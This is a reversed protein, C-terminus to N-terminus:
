KIGGADITFKLTKKYGGIFEVEVEWEATIHLRGEEKKVIIDEKELPLDLEKAKKYLDNLVDENKMVQAFKAKEQAFDKFSYYSLYHPLLMYSLYIVAAVSLIFFIGIIKSNGNSDTIISKNKHM